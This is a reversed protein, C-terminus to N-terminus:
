SKPEPEEIIAYDEFVFSTLSKGTNTDFDVNFGCEKFWEKFENFADWRKVYGGIIKRRLLRLDMTLPLKSVPRMGGLRFQWYKQPSVTLALFLIGWVYIKLCHSGPLLPYKRILM